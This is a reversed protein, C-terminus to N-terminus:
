ALALDGNRTACQLLEKGTAHSLVTLRTFSNLHVYLGLVHDLLQIFVHIGTGAYAEEDLTIQV